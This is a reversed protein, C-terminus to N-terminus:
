IKCFKILKKNGTKNELELFYIGKSLNQIILSENILGKQVILGMNNLIRYNLDRQNIGKINILSTAPNPYILVDQFEEFNTNVELCNDIEREDIILTDGEEQYGYMYWDDDDGGCLISPGYLGRRSSGIGEIWVDKNRWEGEICSLHIVRRLKGDIYTVTNVSDVVLDNEFAFSSTTDGRNLGFDFMLRRGLPINSIVKDRDSETVYRYVRHGEQRFYGFTDGDINFNSSSVMLPTYFLGDFMVSDNVFYHNECQAPQPPWEGTTIIVDWSKDLSIFNNDELNLPDIEIVEDCEEGELCGDADVKILWLLNTEKTDDFDPHDYVTWHYFHNGGALITGDEMEVIKNLQSQRYRGYESQPLYENNPVKYIHHWIITGEQDFRTMFGSNVTHPADYSEIHDYVSGCVIINGNQALLSEEIRYERGLSDNPLIVSWELTKMDKNLKNVRGISPPFGEVPHKDSFFYYNGKHDITLSFPWNLGFAENFVFSDIVEGDLDVKYIEYGPNSTPGAPGKHKLIFALNGDPTAQLDNIEVNLQRAPYRNIIEVNLSDDLKAFFAESKNTEYNILTGFLYVKDDILSIGHPITYADISFNILRNGTEKIDLNYISVREFTDISGIDPEQFTYLKNGKTILSSNKALGSKEYIIEDILSGNISFKSLINCQPFVLPDNSPCFHESTTYFVSDIIAIDFVFNKRGQGLDYEKSWTNQGYSIIYIGLMLITFFIPRM